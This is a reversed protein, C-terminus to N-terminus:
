KSNKEIEQLIIKFVDEENETIGIEKVISRELSKYYAIYKKEKKDKYFAYIDQRDDDLYYTAKKGIQVDNMRVSKIGYKKLEKEFERKNM